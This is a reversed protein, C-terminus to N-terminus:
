ILRTKEIRKTNALPWLGVKASGTFYFSTLKAPKVPLDRTCKLGFLQGVHSWYIKPFIVSIYLEFKFIVYIDDLYFYKQMYVDEYVYKKLIGM